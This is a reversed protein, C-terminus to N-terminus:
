FWNSDALINDSKEKKESFTLFKEESFISISRTHHHSRNRPRSYVVHNSLTTSTKYLYLLSCLVLFNHLWSTYKCQIILFLLFVSGGQIINMKVRYTTEKKRMILIYFIFTRDCLTCRAECTHHQWSFIDVTCSTERM